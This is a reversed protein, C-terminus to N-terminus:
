NESSLEVVNILWRGPQTVSFLERYWKIQGCIEGQESPKDSAFHGDKGRRLM